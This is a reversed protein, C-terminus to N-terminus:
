RARQSTTGFESSPARMSIWPHRYKGTQKLAVVIAEIWLQNPTKAQMCFLQLVSYQHLHYPQIYTCGNTGRGLNSRKSTTKPMDYRLRKQQRICWVGCAYAENEEWHCPTIKILNGYSLHVHLINLLSSNVKDKLNMMFSLISVRAPRLYPVNLLIRKRQSRFSEPWRCKEVEDFFCIFSDMWTATWGRDWAWTLGKAWTKQWGIDRGTNVKTVIYM